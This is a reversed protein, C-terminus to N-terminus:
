FRLWETIRGALVVFIEVFASTHRSHDRGPVERERYNGSHADPSEGAAVGGNQLGGRLRRYDRIPQELYQPICPNRVAGHLVERSGAAFDAPRQDLM